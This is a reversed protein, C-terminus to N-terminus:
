ANENAMWNRIITLTTDPHKNALEVLQRISSARIQGEIQSLSVTAEDVLAAQDGDALGGASSGGPLAADGSWAGGALTPGNGAPGGGALAIEPQKLGNLISRTMLMIIAFATVGLAGAELLGVLDKRAGRPRAAIEQEAPDIPNIFPMSVVEIHDGRKEDFGVASKALREIQDLEAQPRAHWVPKGDAGVTDVGDVMVALTIRDVRPQDSITSHVTKSIEYNTTEEQKGEQSGTNQASADANPLNNQLSVPAARDTTKNNSTINQTSRVVPGDPDFREQTENTKDFNIRVSAEAHVHGAGLSRELMEEVSHELRLSMSRSLDEALMSRTRMDEPDGARALLHLHSDVLTINEPRLEPVAGAVLNVIAQIGEQSLAQSGALTLMVSAQADSHRHAFPEKRPLVLHVRVHSIGHMAQITRALEGELARTRKVDQEFETLTLDSNRDFIEDGITGSAPLGDKSLMARASYVSDAPVLIRRGDAEVRFPIQQHELQDVIQSSDHPDLDGYLLTMRATNVGGLELYAVIGIMGVAVGALALIPALGLKRLSDLLGKM